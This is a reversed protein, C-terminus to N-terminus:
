ECYAYFTLSALWDLDRCRSQLEATKGSSLPNQLLVEVDVQGSLYHLNLHRLEQKGLVGQWRSFLIAEIDLRTPSHRNRGVTYQDFEPDIHVVVDSVSPFAQKLSHSIRESLYHGESVTIWREVELDIDLLIQAGHQRGRLDHVGHIHDHELIHQRFAAIEEDPLASDLVENLAGRLLHWAVRAILLAVLIAAILDAWFYGLWSFVLSVLVVLSSLADSRSHWANALLMSSNIRQAVRRTYHYIWEKGVISLLAVVFASVGPIALQQPDQLRRLSDWTIGGAVAFLAISIVVTGITEFRGHGYPHKKDPEQHSIRAMALVFADTVLDSLSHIGDSVLAVSNALLGVLIKAVGLVLDLVAGILTVRVAARERAKASREIQQKDTM